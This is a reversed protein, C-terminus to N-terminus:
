NAAGQYVIFGTELVIVAWMAIREWRARAAQSAINERSQDLRLTLWERDDQLTQIIGELELVLMERSATAADAANMRGIAKLRWDYLKGYASDMRIITLYQLAPFCQLTEGDVVVEQGPPLAFRRDFPNDKQILSM